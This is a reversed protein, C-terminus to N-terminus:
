GLLASCSGDNGGDGTQKEWRFEGKRKGGVRGKSKTEGAAMKHGKEQGKREVESGEEPDMM